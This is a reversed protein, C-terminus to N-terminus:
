LLHIRHSLFHSQLSPSGLLVKPNPTVWRHSLSVQMQALARGEMRPQHVSMWAGIGPWGREKRCSKQEQGMQVHVLRWCDEWGREWTLGEQKIRGDHCVGATAEEM